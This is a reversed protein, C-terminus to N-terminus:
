SPKEIRFKDWELTSDDGIDSEGYQDIPKPHQEVGGIELVEPKMYGADDM